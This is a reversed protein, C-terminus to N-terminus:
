RQDRNLNPKKLMTAHYVPRL